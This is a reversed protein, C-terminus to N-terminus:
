RRRAQWDAYAANMRQARASASLDTQPTAAGAGMAHTGAGQAGAHHTAHHPAKAHKETKAGHKKASTKKKHVKTTTKEAATATSPAATTEGYMKASGAPAQAFATGAALALAVLLSETKM